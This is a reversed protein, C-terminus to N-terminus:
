PLPLEDPAGVNGHDDALVIWISTPMQRNLWASGDGNYALTVEAGDLKVVRGLGRTPDVRSPKRAYLLLVHGALDAQHATWNKVTARIVPAIVRCRGDDREGLKASTVELGEWAGLTRAKTVSAVVFDAVVVPVAKTEVWRTAVLQYRKRSRRVCM